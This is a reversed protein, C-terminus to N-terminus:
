MVGAAARAIILVEIHVSDQVQVIGSVNPPPIDFDAWTFDTRGVVQLEDGNLRAEVALTLPREVGRVTASGAVTRTVTTGSVYQDPLQGLDNVAFTVTPDNQFIRTRVYSDRRDQDSSLTSVDVSIESPGNLRLEGSLATTRGFADSANPLIALKEHVTYTLASEGAVVNFTKGAVDAKTIVPASGPTASGQADPLSLRGSQADGMGALGLGLGLAAALTAPAGALQLARPATVTALVPTLVGVIAFVIAALPLVFGISGSLFAEGALAAIAVAGFAVLLASAYRFLGAGDQGFRTWAIGAAAGAVLAGITVTGSNLLADDPSHLPLSVLSAVVAAIGGAVVGSLWKM